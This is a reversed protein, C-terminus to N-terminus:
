LDPEEDQESLVVDGTQADMRLRVHEGEANEGQMEYCNDRVGLTRIVYGYEELMQRLDSEAMWEEQPHPQCSAPDSVACAPFAGALWFLLTLAGCRATMGSGYRLAKGM